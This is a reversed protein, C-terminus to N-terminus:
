LIWACHSLFAEEFKVLYINHTLLLTTKMENSRILVEELLRTGECEGVFVTLSSFAPPIAM